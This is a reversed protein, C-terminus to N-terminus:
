PLFIKFETGKNIESVVEVRGQHKEIAQKVIFLGLGTGKAIRTEEDQVRYFKKFINKLDKKRIGIGQDKISLVKWKGEQKLSVEIPNNGSYKFGNEILNNIVMRLIFDDGQVSIHNAIEARIEGNISQNQICNRILESWNVTELNYSYANSEIQMATLMNEALEELRYTSQISRDVLESQKTIEIKPHKSTELMLRIAAIPTKFEHTVSLLFNNQQKNLKYIRDLSSLVGYIGLGVLFLLLISQYVWIKQQALRERDLIEIQMPNIALQILKVQPSAYVYSVTYHHKFQRQVFTNLLDENINMELKKLRYTVQPTMGLEKNKAKEIVQLTCANLGARLVDKKLQFDTNSSNLLSFTLWVFASLIYVIVFILLVKLRM